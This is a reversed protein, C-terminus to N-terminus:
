TDLLEPLLEFNRLARARVILINELLGDRISERRAWIEAMRTKIDCDNIFEIIPIMLGLTRLKQGAIDNLIGEAKVSYGITVTPVGLSLGAITAHMREAIVMTSRGIIGKLEQATHDGGIVKIRENYNFRRALETVIIRDDISASGEHVHPILVVKEETSDLVWEMVKCLALFHESQSVGAFQSIGQSPAITVYSDSESVGYARLIADTTEGSCPELLFAPDATLHVKDEPIGLHNIVYSLSLSERVTILQARRAVRVFMDKDLSSRFPGISHGLFVVPVGKAQAVKLPRLHIRCDGYDSSFVDGGLAIILSARTLLRHNVLYDPDVLKAALFWAPGFAHVMKGRPSFFEDAVGRALKLGMNGLRGNDYDPSRSLIYIEADPFLRALHQITVITFAEVGKNRFGTIGTLVVKIARNM